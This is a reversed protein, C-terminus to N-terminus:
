FPPQDTPSQARSEAWQNITKIAGTLINAGNLNLYMHGDEILGALVDTFVKFDASTYTNNGEAVDSLLECLASNRTEDAKRTDLYKRALSYIANSVTATVDIGATDTLAEIMKLAAYMAHDDTHVAKNQASGLISRTTNAMNLGPAAEPTSAEWYELTGAEAEIAECIGAIVDINRTRYALGDGNADRVYLCSAATDYTTITCVEHDSVNIVDVNSNSYGSWTRYKSLNHRAETVASIRLEGTIAATSSEAIFKDWRITM